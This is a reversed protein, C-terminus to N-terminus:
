RLGLSSLRPPALKLKGAIGEPEGKQINNEKIKSSIM